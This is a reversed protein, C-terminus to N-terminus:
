LVRWDTLIRRGCDSDLEYDFDEKHIIGLVVLQMTNWQYGYVIRYGTAPTELARFRWLSGHQKANQWRKVNVVFRGFKNSGRTTLKDIFAPDANMQELVALITAAAAIDIIRLGALDVLAHAHVDIKRIRM